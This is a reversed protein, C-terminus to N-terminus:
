DTEQGDAGPRESHGLGDGTEEITEGHELEKGNSNLYARRITDYYLNESNRRRKREKMVECAMMVGIIIAPVFFIVIMAAVIIWIFIDM